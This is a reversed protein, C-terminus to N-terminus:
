KMYKQKESEPLTRWLLLQERIENIFGRNLREWETTAGMIRRLIIGFVWRNQEKDETAAIEVRQVVGVQYPSLRCDATIRIYRAEERVGKDMKINTAMFIPADQLEHQTLYENLYRITGLTEIESSTVFPLPINWSDGIPKTPIKWARELSPTVLKSSLIAPYISSLVVAIIAFGISFIVMGSSYNVEIPLFLSFIRSQVMALIYALISGVVGYVLTEAIFLIAVHLPSLGVTGYVSIERKREYISALMLNFINLIVIALPVTQTEMGGVIISAAQRQLIVQGETTSFVMFGQITQYFEDALSRIVTKDSPVISISAIGGGMSIVDRFPLIITEDLTLHINWPNEGAEFDRKIPTIEEHLDLVTEIEEQMIGIVKFPVGEITINVPLAMPDIGLENAQNVSLICSLREGPMFWRSKSEPLLFADLHTINAEEATLGLMAKPPDEVLRKGEYIVTFGIDGYSGVTSPWLTYKWARPLITAIDGYKSHIYNMMRQSISFGGQGWKYKHILIGEYIPQSVAESMIIRLPIRIPSLATFNVISSVMIIVTIITLATRLKRKRMNEVGTSFAYIAQGTRSVEIEHYGIAKVRMERMLSGSEGFIIMVIPFSLILVSFGIVINAPNASLSFGPHLFYLGAMSATFIALLSFIKKYGRWNFILKEALFTFPLLVAAFFPVVSTADEISKRFSVYAEAEHVWADVAYAYVADYDNARLAALAKDILEKNKVHRQYIDYTSLEIFQKLISVRADNMYYLDKAYQM